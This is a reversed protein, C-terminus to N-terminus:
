GCERSNFCGFKLFCRNQFSGSGQIRQVFGGVEEPPYLTPFTLLVLGWHGPHSAFAPSVMSSWQVQNPSLLTNLPSLQFHHSVKRSWRNGEKGLVELGHAATLHNIWHQTCGWRGEALHENRVQGEWECAKRPPVCDPNSHQHRLLPHGQTNIQSLVWLLALKELCVPTCFSM